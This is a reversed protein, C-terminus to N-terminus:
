LPGLLNTNTYRSVTNDSTRSTLRLESNVALYGRTSKNQQIILSSVGAMEKEVLAAIKHLSGNAM